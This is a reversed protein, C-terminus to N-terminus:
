INGTLTTPVSPPPGILGVVGSGRRSSNTAASTSMRSQQLMLNDLENIRAAFEDVYNELTKRDNGAVISEMLLTEALLGASRYCSRAADLQGLLQKVAGDRGSALSHSYILEEVSRVKPAQESSSTDVTPLKSIEVNAADARELVGRFQAGLWNSTVECRNKLRLVESENASNVAHPSLQEIDKSVRQAAGVAGKLMKLAKLYCTLAEGFHSRISRPDPKTSARKSASASTSKNYISLSGGRTPMTVPAADPSIAFPMEETEEDDDKTDAMIKDSSMSSHRRMAGRIRTSSSDDEERPDEVVDEMRNSSLVSSGEEARFVLRMAVYARTDGLHAVSIARRGVDEATAIMKSANAIHVEIRNDPSDSPATRPDSGLRARNVLGMLLGGTGPSTGLMGKQNPSTTTMAAAGGYEVRPVNQNLFYRPSPSPSQTLGYPNGGMAGSPPYLDNNEVMVFGSDDTSAGSRTLDAGRSPQSIEAKYTLQTQPQPWPQKGPLTLSPMNPVRTGMQPVPHAGPPSPQLPALRTTYQRTTRDNVVMSQPAQTPVLSTPTAHHNFPPSMLPAAPVTDPNGQQPQHQPTQQFPPPAATGATMLSDSSSSEDSSGSGENEQITGLDKNPIKTGSDVTATGECGLAVFADCAEFFEQFGARSLPNRNLLMRLLNVCAKSVRVDPPLRVAKRQINRLLDIHNEGNFPPRGSIMEFLVTGVSWLDAKADYRNQFHVLFSPFTLSPM